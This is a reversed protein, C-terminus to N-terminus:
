VEGHVVCGSVCVCVCRLAPLPACWECKSSTAAKHLGRMHWQPVMEDAGGSLFLIPSLIRAV